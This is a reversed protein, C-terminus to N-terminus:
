TGGNIWNLVVTFPPQIGEEVPTAILFRTGNNASAPSSYWSSPVHFLTKPSGPRLAATADTTVIVSMVSGDPARYFLEKGDARWRPALGGGRSVLVKPGDQPFPAVYVDLAGSQDSVFAVWKGDPSFTGDFEDAQTNAFSVPKRQGDLPLAWINRKGTDRQSNFLLFRGDPSWSTPFKSETSLYLADAKGGGDANTLYLDHHSARSSSFAIRRGDPSWVPRTEVQSEDTLRQKVGRALDYIWIAVGHDFRAVAARSGDPSLSPAADVNVPEGVQSQRIGNRDYWALDALDGSASRHVLVGSSSASFFGAARQNGVHEALLRPEGGIEMRLADFDQSWLNADRQYLLRGSGNSQAVYVGGIPTAALQKGPDDNPKADLSGAYIGNNEKVSSLRSYVFHRGDPLFTPFAHVRESRAPDLLTLPVPHGGTEPVRMLGSTTSGFIIDGARNWSGGIVIGSVACVIRPPNGNFETKMLKGDSYFALLKSNPSWFTNATSRTETGPVVKAELSDLRQSWLRLVGDPGAAYYVLIRGDPSISFLGDGRLKLTPPIPIQFRVTQAGSASTSARPVGFRWWSLLSASILLLLAIGAAAVAKPRGLHPAAPPPTAPEDVFMRRNGDAVPPVMELVARPSSRQMRGIFRYGQGAVTEIYRPREASDGLTQRLKNIAANIGHEFDVFTTGSWLQQQLESRTVIQEPRALLMELIQQPQASLKLRTGHKCLQGSAEDYEFPGFAIRPSSSPQPGM